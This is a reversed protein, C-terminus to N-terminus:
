DALSESRYNALAAFAPATLEAGYPSLHNDDMYLPHGDREIACAGNACLIKQPSLHTIKYDASIAGFIKKAVRQQQAYDQETPRLDRVNRSRSQLALAYPVVESAEPVDDLIFVKVNLKRLENMLRRLGREYVAANGAPTGDPTNADTLVVKAGGRRDGEMTTYLTWRGALVVIKIHNSAIWKLVADNRAACRDPVLLGLREMAEALRHNIVPRYNSVQVGLMAPCSGLSELLASEGTAALAKGIGPMIAQAHSDGWVVIKPTGVPNGFKCDANASVADPSIERGDPGRDPCARQQETMEPFQMREQGTIRSPEHSDRVLIAAAVLLTGGIAACSFLAARSLAGGSGRFPTEIYRWSLLSLAICAVIMVARAGLSIPDLFQYQVFVLIPWHFLYLSYSIKGILSFVPNDIVHGLRTRRNCEAYIVLAAGACPLIAYESPFLTARSLLTVSATIAILGAVFAIQAIRESPRPLKAVALCSGILLEWARTQPLYFAAASDMRVTLLCLVLSVGLLLSLVVLMRARMLRFMLIMLLPFVLYFQEEIALSWTHLLPEQQALLNTYGALSFYFRINSLFPIVSTARNATAVVNPPFFFVPLAILVGAFMVFLAPFIRRVRKEYFSVLSFNGAVLDKQIHQTILYGSIVFFIDVGTFGGGFGPINYHYFLVSIVAIARLGDIDARYGSATRLTGRRIVSQDM